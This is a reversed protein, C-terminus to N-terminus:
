NLQHRSVTTDFKYTIWIRRPSRQLGFLRNWSFDAFDDVMTVHVCCGTLLGFVENGLIEIDM